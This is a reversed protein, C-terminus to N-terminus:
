PSILRRSRRWRQRPSRRPNLRMCVSRRSRARMPRIMRRQLVKSYFMVRVTMRQVGGGTEILIVEDTREPLPRRVSAELAADLGELNAGVGQVVGREKRAEATSVARNM